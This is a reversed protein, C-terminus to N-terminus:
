SAPPGISALYTAIGDPVGFLGITWPQTRAPHANRALRQAWSLRRHVRQARTLPAQETILPPAPPVQVRQCFVELHSLRRLSTAPVDDWWVPLPGLPSPPPAPGSPHPPQAPGPELAAPVAAWVSVRRGRHPSARTGRCAAALSCVACDTTRAQYRIRLRGRHVRRERPTLIKGAPCRLQQQSTWVFDPGAFKGRGRGAAAAVQGPAISPPPCPVPEAPAPAPGPAVPEAPAPAPGPAVPEVPAPAPGPAVPEVPAPAPGPAVPEVPAPAPGPAVPEVPAPAPGPAVPEVPAAPPCPPAEPVLPSAAASQPPSAGGGPAQAQEWLTRRVPPSVAAVGLRLRVNWVWQSLLQWSEQGAPHGSCWRDPDQEQDEESLTQEFGGRAFYLNLMDVATLGQTNCDCVFVELVSNGCRKGVRHPRNQDAIRRTIIVRCRVQMENDATAWDMASVEFVERVTGTDPQVFQGQSPQALAQKVPEDQLLSYDAARMVFGLGQQQVLYAGRVYGYLGDLRVIGQQPVLDRARLYRAIDKCALELDDFAHGNGAAGFTGLWEHTHAQQVTTRTRVVEGRKRGPYGPECLPSLRRRVPPHQDDSVLQRQRAAQRTGDVDIVVHRAGSRDVLGGVREGSLGHVLLDEFLLERLAETAPVAVASLFRSLTCRAPLHKRSWLAALLAVSPAMAAYLALLTLEGSLAYVLLVLFFDCGEFTGMRGRPVRVTQQMKSLLASDRAVQLILVAEALWPPATRQPQASTHISVTPTSQAPEQTM